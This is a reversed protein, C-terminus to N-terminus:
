ESAGPHLRALIEEAEARDAPTMLPLIEAVGFHDDDVYALLDLEHKLVRVMNYLNPDAQEAQVYGLIDSCLDRAEKITVNEPLERPTTFDSM